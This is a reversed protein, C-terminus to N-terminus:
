LLSICELVRVRVCVHKHWWGKDLKIGEDFRSFIRYRQAWYKKMEPNERIYIPMCRAKVSWRKKKRQKKVASPPSICELLNDFAAADDCLEQEADNFVKPIM